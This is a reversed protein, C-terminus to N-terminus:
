AAFKKKHPGRKGRMKQKTEETHEKGKNWPIKGMQAISLKIKQEESMPNSHKGMQAISLKIKQEESMPGHKKGKQAIRMKLKTEESHHKNFNGGSDLNLGETCCKFTTIYHREYEDALENPVYELVENTFNEWGYKKLANYLMRQNKCHLGKYDSFRNSLDCTQGVYNKGNPATLKYITVM